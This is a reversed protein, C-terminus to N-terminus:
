LFFGAEELNHLRRAVPSPSLGVSESLDTITARGDKQLERLIAADLNDYKSIEM